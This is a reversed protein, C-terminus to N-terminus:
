LFSNQLKDDGVIQEVSAGTAASLLFFDMPLAKSFDLSSFCFFADTFLSPSLRPELALAGGSSTDVKVIWYLERSIISAHINIPM